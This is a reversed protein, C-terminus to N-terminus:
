EKRPLQQSSMGERLLWLVRDVAEAYAKELLESSSESFPKLVYEHAPAHSDNSRVGVKVRPFQDTQFCELVSRVGRHGGDSGRLRARITGLPLDIDDHVLICDGPLFGLEDALARLVTGTLNVYTNPKVILLPRGDLETHGIAAKGNSTWSIGMSMALRDLVAYGVNHPTREYQIGPNGFGVVVRPKSSDSPIEIEPDRERINRATVATDESAVLRSACIDCFADRGCDSRWCSIEDTRALILRILHDSPNSGKLLVLDGPALYTSLHDNAAKASSFALLEGRSDTQKARLAAFSRPGVFIVHDAVSIARRAISVYATGATGSIDSITGIVLIKRKAKAAEMFDLVAPFTWVSAKWDDRIFTIGNVCVENMRGKFPPVDPVASAAEVLPIGMSIATALSALVAGTWHAGLLRTQVLVSETDWTATFSLHQPWQSAVDDARLMAERTCGYTIVRGVCNSKMQLVRPDDANLIATGDKPVAEVLKRKEIAIADSSHFNSFHDRGINTIVAIKPQVIELPLDLIGPRGGSLEVICVDTKRPTYLIVRAVDRPYNSTGGTKHILFRKALIAALIDKTTTKGASGTIGIVLIGSLHRRRYKAARM